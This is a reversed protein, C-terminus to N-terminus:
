CRVPVPYVYRFPRVLHVDISVVDGPGIPGIRPPAYDFVWGAVKRAVEGSVEGVEDLMAPVIVSEVLQAAIERSGCTIINMVYNRGDRDGQKYAAHGARRIEDFPDIWDYVDM